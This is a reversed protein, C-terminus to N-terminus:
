QLLDEPRIETEARNLAEHYVDLTRRASEIWSFQAARARGKEVLKERM